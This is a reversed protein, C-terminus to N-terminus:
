RRAGEEEEEGVRAAQRGLGAECDRRGEEEELGKGKGKGEM